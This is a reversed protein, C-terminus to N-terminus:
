YSTVYYFVIEDGESLQYSGCSVSPHEGNIKYKWGSYKNYEKEEIGGISTIYATKRDGSYTFSINERVCIKELVDFATSSKDVSIDSSILIGKQGIKDSVNEVSLLSTCDITITISMEKASKDDTETLEKSLEEKHQSVTQIKCGCLSTSLILIILITTIIKM